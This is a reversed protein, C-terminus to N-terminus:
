VKREGGRKRVSMRESQTNKKREGHISQKLSGSIRERHTNSMYQLDFRFTLERIRTM